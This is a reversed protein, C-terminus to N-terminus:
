RRFGFAQFLRWFFFDRLTRRPRRHIRRRRVTYRRHTRRRIPVRVEFRCVPCSNNSVLWTNICDKCFVHGCPLTRQEQVKEMCIPCNEPEAWAIKRTM